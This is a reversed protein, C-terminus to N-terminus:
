LGALAAVLDSCLKPFHNCDLVADGPLSRIRAVRWKLYFM